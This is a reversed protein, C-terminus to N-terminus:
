NAAYAKVLQTYNVKGNATLPIEAAYLVKIASIHLKLEASIFQTVTPLDVQNNNIFVLLQKDNLGACQATINLQKSVITEVEDLNIRNGFLKVFRKLRGTIYYYGEEDVRAIDGTHLVSEPTYTTLDEPSQVYGGFVNPGAYCLENTEQDITFVGNQVPRGVSGIKDLLKEPPLFSMRATAETQGYMVFFKVDNAAAYEAYKKVLTDQLKGGAQTFYRLSPYQKKTFGIRDLMEYLFPVGALSTYKYKELKEWFDKKLVDDNSCIIKGGSIANSTLVSLGYSYYIPLNLPVADTGCIPLYSCISQANALLNAESLKVFKPSGTTGSTSILIKIAPNIAVASPKAATFYVHGNSVNSKYGDITNRTNDYVFYPNYLLELEKKFHETLGPALLAICHSSKMLSWFVTISAISNDLYLFSLQRGSIDTQLLPLDALSFEEGTADNVFLLHKNLSANEFLTDPAM